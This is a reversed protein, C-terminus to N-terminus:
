VSKTIEFLSLSDYLERKDDYYKILFEKNLELWEYVKTLEAESISYRGTVQHPKDPYFSIEVARDWNGYMISYRKCSRSRAMSAIDDVFVTEKIGTYKSSLSTLDFGIDEYGEDFFDEAFTRNREM